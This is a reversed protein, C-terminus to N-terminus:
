DTERKKGETEVREQRKKKRETEKGRVRGEQKGETTEGISKKEKKKKLEREGGGGRLERWVINLGERKGVLTKQKKMQEIKM